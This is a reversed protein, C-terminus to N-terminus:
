AHARVDLARAHQRDRVPVRHGGAGAAGHLHRAALRHRGDHRQHLRGQDVLKADPYGALAHKLARRTARHHRVCRPRAPERVGHRVRPERRGHDPRARALRAGAVERDRARDARAQRGQGLHAHVHRRRELQHEKAWGTTSSRATTASRPSRRPELRGEVRLRVGQRGDGPRDRQRDGQRRGRAGGDQRLASVATVGPTQAATRAIAPDIPSWGDQATIVHSAAIRDNLTGKTEQRLGNAVVTVATVLMVGIMLASRPSRRAARTACRTAARSGAPRAASRPRRAASCRRRPVCRARRSGAAQAGVSRRRAAGRGPRDEDGAAGAALGAVLTVLTGVLLAVIATRAEFVM